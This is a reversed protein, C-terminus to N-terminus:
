HYGGFGLRGVVSAQKTSQRSEILVVGSAQIVVFKLAPGRKEGIVREILDNGPFVAALRKRQRRYIAVSDPHDAITRGCYALARQVHV